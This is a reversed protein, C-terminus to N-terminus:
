SIRGNQARIWAPIDVQFEFDSVQYEPETLFISKFEQHLRMATKNNTFKMLIALALQAPGSGAYGANFGDPSHSWVKLSPVLQLVEDDVTVMLVHGMRKGIITNM